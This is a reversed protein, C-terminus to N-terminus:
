RAIRMVGIRVLARGPARGSGAQRRVALRDHRRRRSALVFVAAAGFGLIAATAALSGAVYTSGAAALVASGSRTYRM